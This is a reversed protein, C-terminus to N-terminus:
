DIYDYIEDSMDILAQAVAPPVKNAKLWAEVGDDPSHIGNEEMWYAIEQFYEGLNNERLMNSKIVKTIEEKIIKKLQKKNVLM